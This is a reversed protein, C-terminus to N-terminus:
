SKETGSILRWDLFTALAEDDDVKADYIVTITSPNGHVEAFHKHQHEIIFTEVQNRTFAPQGQKCIACLAVHNTKRKGDPTFPVDTKAVVLM